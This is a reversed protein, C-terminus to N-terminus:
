RRGGRPAPRGRGRPPGRGRGRGGRRRKPRPPTRTMRERLKVMKEASRSGKPKRREALYARWPRASRPNAKHIADATAAGKANRLTMRSRRDSSRRSQERGM